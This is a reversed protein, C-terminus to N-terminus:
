FPRMFVEAKGRQGSLIYALMSCADPADDHPNKGNRSYRTLMNMFAGYDDDWQNSDKFIFDRIEPSYGEIRSEKAVKNPAKRYTINLKYGLNRLEKDVADAYEDGGNNAEFETLQPKHYIMKNVVRPRTIAKDGKDCIVDHIYVSDGYKYAYIQVYYDGGGWAVDNVSVIKDPTGDPLEGNYYSLSEAPFILGERVYPAGMYKACWTADDVTKKQDLYYKTSFGNYRYQFNSEGAEDLAPIVTFRYRPDGQYMEQLKGLPDDVSWRTGVMVQFAGDLMRDKLQNVYADFKNQLRIPNLAEELDEVLDDCYLCRKAEVAGTLTAGIARCTLSSFRRKKGGLDITEDKASTIIEGIRPFIEKYNYDQDTILSLAEDYFGRTLKDSHGSMVNAEDPYKGMLWTIFFIGLTSKGVRPPLSIGLFDIKGDHLDQYDQVLHKLVKRRPIYFRKEPKRNFEMYQIYCEFSYPADFLLTRRYLNFFKEKTSAYLKNNKVELACAERIEKSLAHAEDFNESEYNRVAEFLNDWDHFMGGDRRIRGRISTIM